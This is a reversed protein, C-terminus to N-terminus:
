SAANKSAAMRVGNTELVDGLAIYQANISTIQVVLDPTQAKGFNQWERAINCGALLQFTFGIQSDPWYM